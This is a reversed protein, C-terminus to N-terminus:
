AWQTGPPPAGVSPGLERHSRAHRRDPNPEGELKKDEEPIRLVQGPYIKDPRSLM